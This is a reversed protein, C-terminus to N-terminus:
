KKYRRKLNKRLALAQGHGHGLRFLCCCFRCSAESLRSSPRAGKSKPRPSNIFVRRRNDRPRAAEFANQRLTTAMKMPSEDLVLSLMTLHARPSTSANVGLKDRRCSTRAEPHNGCQPHNGCKWGTESVRCVTAFREDIQELM